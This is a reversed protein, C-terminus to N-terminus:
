YKDDNYKFSHNYDDVQQNLFTIFIKWIYPSFNATKHLFNKYNYLFILKDINYWAM